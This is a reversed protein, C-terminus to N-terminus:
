YLPMFMITDLKRKCFILRWEKDNTDVRLNVEYYCSPKPVEVMVDVAWAPLFVFPSKQSSGHPKKEWSEESIIFMYRHTLNLYVAYHNSIYICQSIVLM